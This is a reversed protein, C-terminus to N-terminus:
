QHGRTLLYDEPSLYHPNEYLLKRYDRRTLVISDPKDLDGHLKLLPRAKRDRSTVFLTDIWPTRVTRLLSRFAAPGPIDGKLLRDYNTTLVARFPINKLLEKRKEMEPQLEVYCMKEQLYKVLAERGLVDELAQAVEDFAHATKDKMRELIQPEISKAGPRSALDELLSSWTPFHAAGSFGSGVFAICRGADIADILGQPVQPPHVNSTM